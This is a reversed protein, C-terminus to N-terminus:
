KLHHMDEKSQRETEEKGSQKWVHITNIILDENSLVFLIIFILRAAPTMTTDTEARGQFLEYATYLLYASVIALLTSRTKGNNM